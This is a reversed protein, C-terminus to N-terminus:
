KLSTTINRNFFFSVECIFRLIIFCYQLMLAINNRVQNSQARDQLMNELLNFFFKLQKTVFIREGFITFLKPYM